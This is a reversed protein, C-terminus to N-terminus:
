KIEKFGVESLSLINKKAYAITNSSTFGAFLPNEGEIIDPLELKEQAEKDIDYYGEDDPDVKM